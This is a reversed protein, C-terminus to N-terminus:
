KMHLLLDEAVKKVDEKIAFFSFIVFFGVGIGLFAVTLSVIDLRGLQLAIRIASAKDREPCHLQVLNVSFKPM